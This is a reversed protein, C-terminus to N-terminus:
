PNFQYRGNRVFVHTVSRYFDNIVHNFSRYFSNKTLKM